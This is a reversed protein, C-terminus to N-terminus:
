ATCNTHEDITWRAVRQSAELTRRELQTRALEPTAAEAFVSLVPAGAPIVVGPNPLDRCWEGCELAEPVRLVHEAFVIRYGRAALRRKPLLSAFEPVPSQFSRVHWYVLGNPIEEDYLEFTAPPRPNVELTWADDGDLLFDLGNLGRLGTLRVLRDLRAQMESALADPVRCTSAGVYCYPAAGIACFSQVNFGVIYAREGDALFTVSWPRGPVIRQYYCRARHPAGVAPRVHVGGAGGIEKQLWGEADQPPTSQVDPVTFDLARLVEAALEPQKLAAVIDADNGCLTGCAALRSLVQPAREFGSGSVIIRESPEGLAAFMRRYDLAIAGERAICVAEGAARTDRDAFADLVQVRWGGRAASQALARGSIAIVVLQARAPASM